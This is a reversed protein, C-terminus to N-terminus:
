SFAMVLSASLSTCTSGFDAGHCPLRVVGGLATRARGGSCFQSLACDRRVVNSGSFNGVSKVAGVVVAALDTAQWGSHWM